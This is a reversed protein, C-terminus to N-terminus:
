QGKEDAEIVETECEAYEADEDHETRYTEIRDERISLSDGGAFVYGEINETMFKRATFRDQGDYAQQKEDPRHAFRRLNRQM